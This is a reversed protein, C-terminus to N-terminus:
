SVKIGLATAIGVIIGTIVAVTRDILKRKKLKQFEIACDSQRVGCVTQQASILRFLILLKGDTDRQQFDEESLKLDVDVM